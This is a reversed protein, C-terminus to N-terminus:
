SNQVNNMADIIKLTTRTDAVNHVRVM